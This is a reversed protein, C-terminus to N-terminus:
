HLIDEWAERIELIIAETRSTEEKFYDASIHESRGIEASMMLRDWLADYILQRDEKSELEIKEKSIKM